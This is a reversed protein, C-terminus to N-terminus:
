LNLEERSLLTETGLHENVWEEVTGKTSPTDFAWQVDDRAVPIQREELVALLHAISDSNNM